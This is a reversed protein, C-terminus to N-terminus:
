AERLALDVLLQAPESAELLVASAGQHLVLGEEVPSHLGLLAKSSLSLVSHEQSHLSLVSHVAEKPASAELISDEQLSGSPGRRQLRSALGLPARPQEPLAPELAVAAVEVLDELLPSDSPVELVKIRGLALPLVEVPAQTIAKFM